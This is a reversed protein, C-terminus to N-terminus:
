DKNYDTKEQGNDDKRRAPGQLRVILFFSFSFRFDRWVSASLLTKEAKHRLGSQGVTASLPRLM